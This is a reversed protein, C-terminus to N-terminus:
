EGRETLAKLRKALVDVIRQAPGKEQKLQEQAGSTPDGAAGGSPQPPSVAGVGGPIGAGSAETTGAVQTARQRLQEMQAMPDTTPEM